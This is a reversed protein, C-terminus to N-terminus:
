SLTLTERHGNSSIKDTISFKYGDEKGQEVVNSIYSKERYNLTGMEKNEFADIVAQEKQLVLGWEQNSAKQEEYQDELGSVFGMAYSETVGRTTGYLEKYTKKLRKCESEIWDIAYKLVIECISVDDDKGLFVIRNTRYTSVYAYCCLNDAIVKALQGKWQARTFTFDTQRTEINIVKDTSADVERQSIKHQVMLRQAMMLASKAENENPSQSLALLKKIKLVIDNQM